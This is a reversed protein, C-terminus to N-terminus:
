KAVARDIDDSDSGPQQDFESGYQSNKDYSNMSQQSISEAEERKQVM